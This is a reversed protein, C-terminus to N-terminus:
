LSPATGYASPSDCRPRKKPMSPLLDQHPLPRRLVGTEAARLFHFMVDAAGAKSVRSLVASWLEPGPSPDLFVRRGLRNQKLLFRVKNTLPDLIPLRGGNFKGLAGNSQLVEHLRSLIAAPVVFEGAADPRAVQVRLQQLARNQELGALCSMTVAEYASAHVQLLKLARLSSSPLVARLSDCTHRLDAAGPNLQMMLGELAPRGDLVHLFRPYDADGEHCEVFRLGVNSVAPGIAELGRRVNDVNAWFFRRCTLEISGRGNEMLAVISPLQKNVRLNLSLDNVKSQPLAFALARLEADTIWHSGTYREDRLDGEALRTRLREVNPLLELVLALPKADCSALDLSTLRWMASMASRRQVQGEPRGDDLHLHCNRLTLSRLAEPFKRKYWLLPSVDLPNGEGVIAFSVVLQEISPSSACALCVDRLVAPDAFGVDLVKLRYCHGLPYLLRAMDLVSARHLRLRVHELNSEGSVWHSALAASVDKSMMLPRDRSGLEIKSITPFRDLFDAMEAKGGVAALRFTQLTARSGIMGRLLADVERQQPLQRPAARIVLEQASRFSRIVCAIRSAGDADDDPVEEVSVTQVTTNAEALRVAKRLEDATWHLIRRHWFHPLRTPSPETANQCRELFALFEGAAPELGEAVEAQGIENEM